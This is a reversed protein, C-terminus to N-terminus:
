CKRRMSKFKFFFFCHFQFCEIFFVIEQLFMSKEVWKFVWFVYYKENKEILILFFMFKSTDNFRSFVHFFWCFHVIEIFFWCFCCWFWFFLVFILLNVNKKWFCQNKWENSCGFFWLIKSNKMLFKSFVHIKSYRLVKFICPSILM